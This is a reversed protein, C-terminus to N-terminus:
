FVGIQRLTIVKKFETTQGSTKIKTFGGVSVVEFLGETLVEEHGLDTLKDTALGKVPGVTKLLYNVEGVSYFAATKDSFSFASVHGLSLQQGSILRDLDPIEKNSWVGRFLPENIETSSRIGNILIRAAKAHEQITPRDPMPLGLRSIPPGVDPGGKSNVYEALGDNGNKIYFESAKAVTAGGAFDLSHIKAAFEPGVISNDIAKRAALVKDHTPDVCEGTPSHDCQDHQGPLHYHKDYYSRWISALHEADERNEKAGDMAARYCAHNAEELLYREVAGAAGDAAYVHVGTAPVYEALALYHDPGISFVERKSVAVSQKKPLIAKFPKVVKSQQRLAHLKLIKDAVNTNVATAGQALMVALLM